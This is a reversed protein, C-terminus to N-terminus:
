HSSNVLTILQAHGDAVLLDPLGDGNVDGSGIVEPQDTVGESYSSQFTGDGRGLLVTVGGGDNRAVALDLIRDENLDVLTASVAALTGPTYAYRVPQFSGDGNGLLVAVTGASVASLIVDRRGDGDIDAIQIERYGVGSAVDRLPQFTGEGRGLYVGLGGPAGGPLAIDLRGDGDLDALTVQAQASGAGLTSGSQFTGDGRGLLVSTSTSSAVVLDIRGDGNVDGIGPRADGVPVPLAVGPGFTGNGLGLRILGEALLDPVADGNFDALAAYAGASGQGLFSTEPAFRGGGRGLLVTFQNQGGTDGAAKAVVVDKIGDGDLDATALARTEYGLSGLPLSRPAYLSGDGRGLLVRVENGTGALVSDPRTVVIVDPSRDGNVDGVALAGPVGRVAFHQPADYGSYGDGISTVVDNGIVAVIDPNNDGNLDSLAVGAAPAVPDLGLPVLQPSLFLNPARRLFLHVSADGLETNSVVALDYPPDSDVDDVAVGSPSTGAPVNQELRLTGNGQNIFVSVDSSTQNAVVLDPILNRDVDRATVAVPGSGTELSQALQFSGNGQGFFVDLDSSRQNVVALDLRADRNFDAVALAVPNAGTALRTPAQLSGDGRGRLLLVDDSGADAVALDPVGDGNFDGAVVAVPATGAPVQAGAQFSGDGRGLLVSVSGSGRNATVLDPRGDRDLDAIAVARPDNGVPQTFASAFGLVLPQGAPTPVYLEAQLVNQVGHGGAVLLQGSSLLTTTHRERGNTLSAAPRFRESVPDFLEADALSSISLLTLAGGAVLVRGDGLLTASHLHRPISMSGTVHFSGTAPDYIECESLAANNTRLVEGGGTILVRGDGLLTSEHSFRPRLLASTTSFRGSAPDYIEAAVLPRGDAGVGGIVLVRGDALRTATHAQRRTLLNGTASFRGSAPDYIEAPAVYQGGIGDYGGTMLVRGDQLLTATHGQRPVTMPSAALFREVGPSPDYLETSSLSTTGDREGGAMLVRGNSLLTATHQARAASMPAIPIFAALTPDFIEATAVVARAIDTFPQDVGGAILVRGDALRTATHLSHGGSLALSGTVTVTATATVTPADVSTATVTYIGPTAPAIYTGDVTISGGSATWTVASTPAGTVTASFRQAAGTQLTARAPTIAVQIVATPRYLEATLVNVNYQGGALLVDGSPLLTATHRQRPMGLDGALQWQGTLPDYLETSTHATTSQFSPSGGVVFVQGNRLLVATHLQRPAQLDGTPAFQGTAPDYLECSTLADPRVGGSVLVRGDGLLTAQHLFRRTILRGTPIFQGTAPDYLEASVLAGGPGNGYGGIILIRGDDLLTASHLQRPALLRGTLRFTGTQPDYLEATDTLAGTTASYGGVILVEGSPLRTATHAQRALALRGTSTTTGLRPDYLEASALSSTGGQEGGAILVTDDSLLTASHLARAEQLSTRLTFRGSAPDYVEVQDTVPQAYGQFPQSVGGAILVTGDDLLTATHVAHPTNLDGTARINALGLPQAVSATRSPAVPNGGCGGLLALAHLLLPGWSSALVPSRPSRPLSRLTVFSSPNEPVHSM